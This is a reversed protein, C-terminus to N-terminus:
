FLIIFLTTTIKLLIFYFNLLLRNKNLHLETLQVRLAELGAILLSAMSQLGYAVILTVLHPCWIDGFLRLQMVKQLIVMMINM